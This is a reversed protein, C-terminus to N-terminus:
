TWKKKYLRRGMAANIRITYKKREGGWSDQCLRYKSKKKGRKAKTGVTSGM